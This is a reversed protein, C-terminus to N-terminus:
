KYIKQMLHVDLLRGSKRGVERMIGIHEFGQSEAIHISAINGETIRAILTHLGADRGAKIIAESLRRGIGQGRHNEAIYLSIEATDSYACRDSWASLSAWGVLIGDQEAVLIPHREGHQEFWGRQGEATKTETDFTAVTNLIAQNYIETIAELDPLIAQRITLMFM